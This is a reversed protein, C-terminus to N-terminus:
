LSVNSGVENPADDDSRIEYQDSVVNGTRGEHERFVDDLLTMDDNENWHKRGM